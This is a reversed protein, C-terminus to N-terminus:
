SKINLYDKGVNTIHYTQHNDSYDIFKYKLYIDVIPKVKNENSNLDTAIKKLSTFKKKEIDQLVAIFIEKTGSMCTYKPKLTIYKHTVNTLFM